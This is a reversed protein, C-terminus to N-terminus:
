RKNQPNKYFFECTKKFSAGKYFNFWQPNCEQKRAYKLEAEKFEPTPLIIILKTTNVLSRAILDIKKINNDLSKENSIAEGEENYHSKVVWGYSDYAMSSPLYNALWYNSIILIKPKKIISEKIFKSPNREFHNILNKRSRFGARSKVKM